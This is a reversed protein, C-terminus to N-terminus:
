VKQNHQFRKMLLTILDNSIQLRGGPKYANLGGAEAGTSQGAPKFPASDSLKLSSIPSSADNINKNNINNLVQNNFNNNNRLKLDYLSALSSFTNKNNNNNLNSQFSTLFNNNNEFNEMEFDLSKQETFSITFMLHVICAVASYNNKFLKLTLLQM